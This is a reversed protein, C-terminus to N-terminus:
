LLFLDHITDSEIIRPRNQVLDLALQDSIQFIWRNIALKLITYCWPLDTAYILCWLDSIGIMCAVQIFLFESYLFLLHAVSDSIQFIWRNIALKLLTYCWPLDTAYILCWLDSISMMCAVLAAPFLKILLNSLDSSLFLSLFLWNCDKNIELMWLISQEDHVVNCSWVNLGNRLPSQDFLLFTHQSM